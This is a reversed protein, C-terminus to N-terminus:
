GDRISDNREQAKSYTCDNRLDQYVHTQKDTQASLRM